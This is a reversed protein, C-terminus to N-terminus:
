NVLQVVGHLDPILSISLMGGYGFSNVSARRVGLGPWPTPQIPVAIHFEQLRLKPNPVQFNINPPIIGAELTLIAKMLGALGAGAEQHGINPKISGVYFPASSRRDSRSFVSSIASM